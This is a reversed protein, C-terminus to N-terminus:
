HTLLSSRAASSRGILSLNKSTKLHSRQQQDANRGDRWDDANAQHVHLRAQLLPVVLPVGFVSVDLAAALKTRFRARKGRCSRAFSRHSRTRWISTGRTTPTCVM